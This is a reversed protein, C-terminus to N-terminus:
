QQGFSILDLGGLVRRENSMDGVLRRLPLPHKKVLTPAAVVQEQRALDPQQYLDVVQLEYAGALHKSCIRRVNEVARVSRATMGTVYLRLVYHTAPAERGFSDLNADCDHDPM